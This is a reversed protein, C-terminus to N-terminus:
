CIKHILTHLSVAHTHRCNNYTSVLVQMAQVLIVAVLLFVAVLTLLVIVTVRVIVLMGVTILVVVISNNYQQVIAIIINAIQKIM